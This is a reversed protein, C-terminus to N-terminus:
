YTIENPALIFGLDNPDYKDSEINNSVQYQIKGTVKGYRITTNFGDYGNTAWIKSYRATGSFNHANRKDYLSFDFASVNADRSNGNRIVNANTFTIYSRGKLAQDLVFLNFNTLP